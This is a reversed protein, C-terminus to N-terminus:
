KPPKPNAAVLEKLFADVMAGVQMRISQASKAREEMAVMGRDWMTARVDAGVWKDPTFVLSGDPKQEAMRAILVPQSFTVRATYVMWQDGGVPLLGVQVELLYPSQRPEDGAPKAVLYSSVPAFVAVGSQRVRQEVDAALQADTLGIKAAADARLPAVSVGVSPIGAYVPDRFGQGAQGPSAALCAGLAVALWM